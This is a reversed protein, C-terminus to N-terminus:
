GSLNPALLDDDLEEEPMGKVCLEIEQEPWVGDVWGDTIQAAAIESQGPEGLLALQVDVHQVDVRALLKRPPELVSPFVAPADVDGGIEHLHDLFAPGTFLRDRWVRHVLPREM